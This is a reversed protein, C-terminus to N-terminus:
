PMVLQETNSLVGLLVMCCCWATEPPWKNGLTPVSADNM